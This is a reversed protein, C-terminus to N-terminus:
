CNKPQYSLPHLPGGNCPEAHAEREFDVLGPQLFAGTSEEGRGARVLSGVAVQLPEGNREEGFTSFVACITLSPRIVPSGARPLSVKQALKHRTPVRRTGVARILRDRSGFVM